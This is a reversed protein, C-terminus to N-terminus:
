QPVGSDPQDQRGPLRMAQYLTQLNNKEKKLKEFEALERRSEDSQGLQRLLVGLRYHSAPNFPELQAARRLPAEAKEPEHLSMMAKALGLNADPDNPQLQLARSYYELAGKQDSRRSEIDGLRCESKEDFPNEALAAKYEKEAEAKNAAFSSGNLMEALEFHLDSHRPELKLAERYHMIAAENDARRALEHAMLQHMRASDPAVMALSLTTEDALDSFIRHATYLIDPDSPKLQRLVNVVEAAKSLDNLTYDVEILEMGTEIRLKEEELHPFSTELDSQARTMEGTRKEGMGLLAQLKFLGPRLKLAAQMQDTAGRYDGAFYQTVGINARADLNDPDIALIAKYEKIALAPQKSQLDLQAQRAHSQIADQQSGNSQGFLAGAIIPLLSCGIITRRVM